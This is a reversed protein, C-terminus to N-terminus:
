SHYIALERPPPKERTESAVCCSERVLTIEKTRESLAQRSLVSLGIEAINLWSGHKPTYHIELRETLKKAEEKSFTQYFSGPTHTNLNDLVLVLQEADPYVEDCTKKIFHAFDSKTRRETVEAV